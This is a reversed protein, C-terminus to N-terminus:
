IILASFRVYNVWIGLYNWSLNQLMQSNFGGRSCQNQALPVNVWHWARWQLWCCLIVKTKSFTIPCSFAIKFHLRHVLYEQHAPQLGLLKSVRGPPSGTLEPVQGWWGSPRVAFGKVFKLSWINRWCANNSIRELFRVLINWGVITDYSSTLVCSTDGM